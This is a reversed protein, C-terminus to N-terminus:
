VLSFDIQRREIDVRDVRVKIEDGIRFVRKNKRGKLVKLKELYIYYDDAITSVHVLGRVFIEKLEVFFGSPIVDSIIGEYEEGLKNKMFRVRKIEVVDSEAQASARERTSSHQAIKSLYSDVDRRKIIGYQSRKVDRILRHVMLDPYRRIPSTFHTYAELGLAFHGSNEVTYRAQKMSRLMYISILLEEPKNKVKNLLSQLTMPSIKKDQGLDQYGFVKIFNGFEALKLKDPPEHTRYIFPLEQSSMFQAAAVNASIMFHEILQHAINRERRIIDETEGALDIIVEPEPLDFDIYGKTQRRKMLINCLMLMLDLDEVFPEFERSLEPDKDLLIKKVITYTLRAKSRIVTDNIEYNLMNGRIDFEMFISLCLRDEDPKLSCIENSLEFPLMPIVKDPFYVSTGRLFAEQDIAGDIPIYYSVDAIHVGLRFHGSTLREISVADDFDRAHEGDITVTNMERLDLRNALEESDIKTPCRKAEELVDKPFEYPLEHDYIVIDTDLRPNDKEGLISVVRGTFMTHKGPYDVIDAVVIQGDKAGGTNKKLIILDEKIHTDYPTIYNYKRKSVFEGVIKKRAREVIRIIKGEPKQNVPKHEIRVVVKDGDLAGIMNGKGVYIDSGFTSLEPIVFGYGGPNVELKGVVLDMKPPSGIREGKIKILQGSQILELIISKFTHREESSIKFHGILEKITLPRSTSQNIYTLIEEKTIM